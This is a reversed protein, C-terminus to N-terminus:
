VAAIKAYSMPEEGPKRRRLQRMRKITEVEGDRFGFPKRGGVRGSAERGRRMRAVLSNKELEAFVAQMQIMARKMPDAQYEESVNQGTRASWVSVGHKALHFVLQEQL